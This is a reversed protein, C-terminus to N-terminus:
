KGNKKVELDNLLENMEDLSIEGSETSEEVKKTALKEDHIAQIRQYLNETTIDHERLNVRDEFEDADFGLLFHKRSEPLSGEIDDIYIVCDDFQHAINSAIQLLITSKGSGSRGIITNTSGDVIGCADYSFEGMTPSEVYISTGNLYDISLFGTSYM